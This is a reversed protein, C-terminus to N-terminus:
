NAPYGIQELADAHDLRPEIRILITAAAGPEVLRHSDQQSQPDVSWGQPVGVGASVGNGWLPFTLSQTTLEIPQGSVSGAVLTLMLSATLLVLSKLATM